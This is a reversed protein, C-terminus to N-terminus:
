KTTLIDEVQLDSTKENQQVQLFFLTYPCFHKEWCDVYRIHSCDTCSCLLWCSPPFMDLLDSYGLWSTKSIGSVHFLFTGLSRDVLDLPSDAPLGGSKLYLYSDWICICSQASGLLCPELPLLPDTKRCMPSAAQLSVRGGIGRGRQCRHKFWCKQGEGGEGGGGGGEGGWGERGRVSTNLGGINKYGDKDRVDSLFVIKVTCGWKLTNWKRHWYKGDTKWLIKIRKLIFATKFKMGGRGISNIHTSVRGRDSKAEIVLGALRGDNSVNGVNSVFWLM